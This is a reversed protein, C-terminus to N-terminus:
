QTGGPVPFLFCSDPTLNNHAAARCSMDLGRCLRLLVGSEQCRIGTEQNM